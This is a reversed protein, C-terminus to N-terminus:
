SILYRDWDNPGFGNKRLILAYEVFYPGDEGIRMECVNAIQHGPAVLPVFTPYKNNNM